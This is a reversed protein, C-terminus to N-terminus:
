FGKNMAERTDREIDLLSELEKIRAELEKNEQKLHKIYDTQYHLTGTKGFCEEKTRIKDMM